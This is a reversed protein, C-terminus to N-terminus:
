LYLRKKLSMLKLGDSSIQLLEKFDKIDKELNTFSSVLKEIESAEKSIKQAKNPDDWFNKKFNFWESWNITKDKKIHWLYEKASALRESMEKIKLLLEKSM